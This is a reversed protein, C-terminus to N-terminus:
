LTGRAAMPVAQALVVTIAMFLQQAVSWGDLDDFSLGAAHAVMGVRIWKERPIDSPMSFIAERARDIDRMVISPLLSRNNM